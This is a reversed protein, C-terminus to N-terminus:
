DANPISAKPKRKLILASVFAVILGVPLVEFYTILVVFLPNGYLERFQEMETTKMALESTTAGNQAAEKLVHTIYHDLFDPVALYYYFLWVIVYITSGTLAILAGTKFAKGLSIAGDPQKSRYNFIGFFTMSFIVVMATYGLVDNSKFDPNTYCLNVMYVMNATMIAGLILGFILVSRKMVRQKKSAFILGAIAVPRM